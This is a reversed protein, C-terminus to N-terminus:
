LKYNILYGDFLFNNNILVKLTKDVTNILYVDFLTKLGFLYTVPMNEKNVKLPMKKLGLSIFLNYGSAFWFTMLGQFPSIRLGVM